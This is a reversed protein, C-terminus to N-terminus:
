VVLPSGNIETSSTIVPRAFTPNASVQTGAMMVPHAVATTTVVPHAIVSRPPSTVPAFITQPAHFSSMGMTSAPHAAPASVFGQSARPAAIAITPHAAPASVFHTVPATVVGTGDPDNLAWEYAQKVIVEEEPKRSKCVSSLKLFGTAVSIGVLYVGYFFLFRATDGAFNKMDRAAMGECTPYEYGGDSLHFLPPARWTSNYWDMGNYSWDRGNWRWGNLSHEPVGHEPCECDSSSTEAASGESSDTALMEHRAQRRGSLLSAKEKQVFVTEGNEFRTTGPCRLCPARVVHPTMYFTNNPPAGKFEPVVTPPTNICFGSCHYSAEMARLLTTYPAAEQYGECEEVSYKDACGPMARINHLVQSYEYLRHTQASTDCRYLLNTVTIDVQHSLPLSVLMFSVGFIMVSVNGLLMMTHEIQAENHQKAFFAYLLLLYFFIVLACGTIIGEPIQRGAWFVYNSDELLYYACWIPVAALLLLFFTGVVALAFRLQLGIKPAVNVTGGKGGDPM